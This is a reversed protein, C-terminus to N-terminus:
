SPLAPCPQAWGQGAGARPQAPCPQTTTTQAAVCTISNEYKAQMSDTHVGNRLTMASISTPLGTALWAFTEVGEVVEEEEEEEEEDDDVFTCEDVGVRRTRDSFIVGVADGRM